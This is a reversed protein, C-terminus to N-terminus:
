LKMALSLGGSFGAAGDSLGATTYGTLRLRGGSISRSAGAFLEHADGIFRSAAQAFHYSALIVTRDGVIVSSGASAAFGDQLRIRAPDGFVRFTFSAFPAVRGITRTVQVGASYDAKRSSLGSARSATPLKVRGSLEFDFGASPQPFTYSAGLTVDGFGDSTVRRGTGPAVVVPTSDIGTFVTGNSRIRMYPISANLRLNGRSYRAGLATSWLRTERAAGFDGEAYSTGLSIEFSRQEPGGSSTVGSATAPSVTATANSPSGAPMIATDVPQGGEAAIISAAAFIWGTM